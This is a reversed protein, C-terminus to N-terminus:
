DTSSNAASQQRRLARSRTRETAGAGAEKFSRSDTATFVTDRLRHHVKSDRDRILDSAGTPTTDLELSCNQARNPHRPKPGIPTFAGFTYAVHPRTEIVFVRLLGTCRLPKSTSVIAAVIAQAQSAMPYAFSRQLM